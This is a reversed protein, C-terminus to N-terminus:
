EYRVAEAVPLRCARWAPLVGALLSAAVTLAAYQVILRGPFIFQITWDFSQKNIVHILILSLALGALAGVVNAALGLLGAEALVTRAIGARDVGLSRLIGIERTRELVSAALTTLVALAAVILAIAQLAYTIAFTQDFIDLIRRRLDRSSVIVLDERGAAARVAQRVSEADAAPALYVVISDLWPDSWLAQFLQRDMVVLGGDTTYDYYVGAIRLVVAGGPARLRVADGERLHYREAYTESVIVEDRTRAERLIRGSDGRRFLLRGRRAMLDFDGAGLMFQGGREDRLRLRRVGDADAVGPVSRIRSLLDGPLRADAGKILRGARSVYLDARITQDTWVRVTHRFSAIMTSVGVLMSLGVAMAAVTVSNRRRARGLNGAALRAAVLRSGRLAALLARQFAYLVVPCLLIAGLLLTLAAAYGFLPRGGVPGLRALGLTFLLVLAGLGAFRGPRHRRELAAPALDERPPIRTADLAPALSAVLTVALGLLVAQLIMAPPTALPGPAIFAYLSSVTLSVAQLTRRALLVGLAAVLLSGLLGIAVGEGVVALMVGGRSMGLSRLIGIQRRQRVVSVTMTNYVLFAGVFLAILGLVFLNLQFSGLMREVQANRAEPREVVIGAPLRGRLAAAVRDPEAGPELLVDVRDLRGLKGFHVQAAAIDLVAVQGDMTRAVGEDALLSRVTFAKPGTPTNLRLTGGVALGRARAYRAGLLIADPDTLLRLPEALDPTPGRYERFASDELVDVGLVLLMGGPDGPVSMVAQLVPAASAVGPTGAIVPFLTEDLGPEGASVELQTRGAVHDLSNRFATLVGENALGIALTVAVGLAVGLITILSRATDRALPRWALRRALWLSRSPSM